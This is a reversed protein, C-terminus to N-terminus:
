RPTIDRTARLTGGTIQDRYEATIRLPSTRWAPPEGELSWVVQYHTGMVGSRYADRLQAPSLTQEFALSPSTTTEVRVTLTGVGQVPRTRGDRLKVYVLLQAPRNPRADVGSWSDVELTTAVPLAALAEPSLAPSKDSALAELEQVRANAQALQSRLQANEARLADNTREVSASGGVRVSACGALMASLAVAGLLAPARHPARLM